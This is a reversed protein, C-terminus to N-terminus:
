RDRMVRDGPDTRADCSLKVGPDLSTNIGTKTGDGAVVGFKRRGTSVREGKITMKVPEDDHRLNAVITGAGFNVERGLVSDGVYSLHPVSAGEMLLSNKIEVGHGVTANEGIMTAGRIYANPGISAGSGVFVPGEITVGSRVVAGSEVIVDGHVEAREHIEGNLGRTQEDLKWENASLLEWPRGVDLWTEFEVYEVRTRRCMESVVDTIEHEGRESVETSLWDLADDPFVYAGANILKSPPDRPKEIVRTVSGSNVELVGYPRPDEVVTAGIAAEVSYLEDLGIPDYLADGNLVVFSNDDLVSKAARVAAATGTLETQTVYEIPIGNFEKGFFDRIVDEKYGVVLVLQTAGASIADSLTHVLIPDGAVPLMPKPRSESLPRMRTGKGAALVVTQM